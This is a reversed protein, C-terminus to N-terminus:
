EKNNRLLVLYNSLLHSKLKGDKFLNMHKLYIINDRLMYLNYYQDTLFINFIIDSVQWLYTNNGSNDTNEFSLNFDPNKNLLSFSDKNKKYSDYSKLHIERKNQSNVCLELLLLYNNNNSNSLINNSTDINKEIIISYKKKYKITPTYLYEKIEEKFYNTM